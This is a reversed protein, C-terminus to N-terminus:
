LLTADDHSAPSQGDAPRYFGKQTILLKFSSLADQEAPELHGLHQAPFSPLGTSTRSLPDRTSVRSAPNTPVKAVPAAM